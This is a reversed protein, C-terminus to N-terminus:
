LCFIYPLLLTSLRPASSLLRVEPKKRSERGLWTLLNLIKSVVMCGVRVRDVGGAWQGRGVQWHEALWSQEHLSETFSVHCRTDMCHLVETTQSGERQTSIESVSNTRGAKCGYLLTVSTTFKCLSLNPECSYPNQGHDSPKTSRLSHCPLVYHHHPTDTM